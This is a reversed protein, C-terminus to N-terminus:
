AASARRRLANLAVIHSAGSLGVGFLPILAMPLITLLAMRPDGILTFTLGAGVAVVFDAFGFVHIRRLRDPTGPRWLLTAACCGAVLDGLGALLWFLFPLEGQAGYWFFVLAAPIRWMHMLTLWRLGLSDVARRVPLFAFYAGLPAAIGLAVLGAFAPMFAQALAELAGGLIAWVVAFLWALVAIPLLWPFAAQGSGPTPIRQM